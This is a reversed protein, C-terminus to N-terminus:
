TKTGATSDLDSSRNREDDEQPTALNANPTCAHRWSPQAPPLHWSLSNVAIPQDAGGDPKAPCRGVAHPPTSRTPGGSRPSSHVQGAGGDPKAPCRGM